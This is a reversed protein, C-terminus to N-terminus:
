VRKGVLYICAYVRCVCLCVHSCCVWACQTQLAKTCAAHLVYWPMSLFCRTTTSSHWDSPRKCPLHVRKETLNFFFTASSPIYVFKHHVRMIAKEFTWVIYCCILVHVHVTTDRRCAGGREYGVGVWGWGVGLVLGPM